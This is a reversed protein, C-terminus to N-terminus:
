TKAYASGALHANYPHHSATQNQRFSAALATLQSIIVDISEGQLSVRGTHARQLNPGPRIIVWGEPTYIGSQLLGYIGTTTLVVNEACLAGHARDTSHQLALAQRLQRECAKLMAPGNSANHQIVHLWVDLLPVAPPIPEVLFHSRQYALVGAFSTVFPATFNPLTTEFEAHALHPSVDPGIEHLLVSAGDLARTLRLPQGGLVGRVRSADQLELGDIEQFHQHM